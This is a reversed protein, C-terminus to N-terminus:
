LPDRALRALKGRASELAELDRGFPTMVPLIREHATTALNYKVFSAMNGSPGLDLYVARRHERDFEILTRQFAIPQRIVQWWYAASFRDAEAADSAPAAGNVPAACSVVPIKAAASAMSAFTRMFLAELHDVRSSHFAVSVPLRQHVVDQQKLQVAVQEIRSTPGSVVFCRDFNTGALECDEAFAPNTRFTAVDDIVLLMAGECHAEFLRAQKILDFLMAEPAAVEAVAAAIFEGLSAGLLYDPAAVGAALLTRAMAYQVMFLAPHTYLIQDFAEGKTHASDYLVDVVSQGVYDAAVADLRDMWLRFTENGDYLMRGMQFYQVGQGPFMWVVPQQHSATM